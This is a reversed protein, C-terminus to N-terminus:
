QKHAKLMTLVMNELFSQIQISDNLDTIEKLHIANIKQKHATTILISALSLSHSYKPNISKLVSAIKFCAEKYSNYVEVLLPDKLFKKSYMRGSEIIAIHSLTSEDVFKESPDEELPFSIVKIIAKLKDKPTKQNITHFDINYKLWNWYWLLLYFLLQHKNEFYRYISAETSNIEHALKKFTFEDFGIEDILIISQNIIKKGLESTEPDKLFFKRESKMMIIALYTNKLNSDVLVM